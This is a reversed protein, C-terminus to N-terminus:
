NCGVATLTIASGTRTVIYDCSECNSDIGCNYATIEHPAVNIIDGDKAFEVCPKANFDCITSEIIANYNIITYKDLFNALEIVSHLLVGTRDLLGHYCFEYALNCLVSKDVNDCVCQVEVFTNKFRGHKCYKELAIAFPEGLPNMEDARIWISLDDLLSSFKVYHIKNLISM